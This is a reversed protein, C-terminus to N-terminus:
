DKGDGDIGLTKEMALGIFLASKAAGGPTREM